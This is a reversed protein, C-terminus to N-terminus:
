YAGRAISSLPGTVFTLEDPTLVRLTVTAEAHTPNLLADYLRETISLGTVRVPVIRGPGWVFLVVDLKEPPNRFPQGGSAAGRFLNITLASKPVMLLELASLTPLVGSAVAIPNAQALQENADVRLSFSISEGPQGPQQNADQTGSGDTQVPPRPLAPNRTARM